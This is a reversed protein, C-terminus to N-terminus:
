SSVDAALISYGTGIAGATCPLLPTLTVVSGGPGSIAVAVGPLSANLTGTPDNVLAVGGKGLTVSNITCPISPTATLVIDGTVAGTNDVANVEWTDPAGLGLTELDLVAPNLPNIGRSIVIRFTPLDVVMITQTPTPMVGSRNEGTGTINITGVTVGTITVPNDTINSLSIAGTDPTLWAWGYLYAAPSAVPFAGQMGTVTGTITEGVFVSAASLNALPRPNETLTAEGGLNALPVPVALAMPSLAMMVSAALCVMTGFITQKKM